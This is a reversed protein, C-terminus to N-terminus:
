VTIEKPDPLSNFNSRKAYSYAGAGGILIVDREEFLPMEREPGFRDGALMTRGAIIQPALETVPRNLVEVFSDIDYLAAGPFLHTGADVIAIRRNGSGNSREVIRRVTCMIYGCPGILYEGPEAFVMVTELLGYEALLARIRSVFEQLPFREPASDEHQTSYPIGWGGGINLYKLEFDHSSAQSLTREVGELYPEPDYGSSGTHLHLGAIVIGLAEAARLAEGLNSLPVGFRSDWTGAGFFSNYGASVGPNVRLGIDNGRKKGDIARAWIALDDVNDLDITCGGEAFQTLEDQNPALSCVHIRGKAFGAERVKKLEGVSCVDVGIDQTVLHQLIQKSPNAKVSYLLKFNPIPKFAKQVRAIRCGLMELDWIYAPTPQDGLRAKLEAVRAANM